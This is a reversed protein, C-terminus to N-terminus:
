YSTLSRFSLKELITCFIGVEEETHPTKCKGYIRLIDIYWINDSLLIIHNLCSRKNLCSDWMWVHIKMTEISFRDVYFMIDKNRILYNSCTLFQVGSYIVRERELRIGACPLYMYGPCFSSLLSSVQLNSTWKSKKAVSIARIFHIGRLLIYFNMAHPTFTVLLRLLKSNLSFLLLIHHQESTSTCFYQIAM